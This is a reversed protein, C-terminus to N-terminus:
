TMLELLVYFKLNKSTKFIKDVVLKVKLTFFM